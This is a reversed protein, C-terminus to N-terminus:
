PLVVDDSLGRHHGLAFFIGSSGASPPLDTGIRVKELLIYNTPQGSQMRKEPTTIYNM